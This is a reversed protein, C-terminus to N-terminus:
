FIFYRVIKMYYKQRLNTKYMNRVAGFFLNKPNFNRCLKLCFNCQKAIIYCISLYTLGQVHYKSILFCMSNFVPKFKGYM